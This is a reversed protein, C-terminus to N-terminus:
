GTAGRRSLRMTLLVVLSGLLTMVTGLAALQPFSGGSWLDLIVFGVVPNSNNALMLSATIDGSMLVFLLTWGAVLSPRMLPLAVRRFATGASAGAMLAAEILQRDVQYLATTASLTAQPMYLIVYAILLLAPTGYLDFPPGSFAVLVAIGVVLHSVAGPLKTVLDVLRALPGGQAGRLFAAILAALAIGISAGVVGLGISRTIATLSYDAEIFISRYHELSLSSLRVVPVWFPQLSVIALALFPLVTSAAMYALFVLRAPYRWAGLRVRAVGVGRGGITAFHGGRLVRAQLLSAAGIVAAVVLALLIAWETRPPYAATMLTVIRVSLLEIRAPGGIIAPLSFLSLGMILALLLGAVAAPRVAPLTVHRLTAFPGAGCIRAAEELAPDLTRLHSSVTLFVNPILYIVFVGVLGPGSHIDLLPRALRIGALALGDQLWRNIFGTRSSGLLVWGIASAIPPVFLPVLPLVRALRQLGIDTREVLWALVSGLLTAILVASGIVWATDFLVRGIGSALIARISAGVGAGGAVFVRYVMAALPYLILAATALAALLALSEFPGRPPRVRPRRRGPAAPAFAASPADAM